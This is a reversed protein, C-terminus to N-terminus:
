RAEGPVNAGGLQLMKSILVSKPNVTLKRYDSDKRHDPKPHLEVKVTILRGIYNGREQLVKFSTTLGTKGGENSPDYAPNLFTVWCILPQTRQTEVFRWGLLRDSFVRLRVRRGVEARM